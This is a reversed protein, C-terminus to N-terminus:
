LSIGFKMFIPLQNASSTLMFPKISVPLSAPFSCLCKQSTTANTTFANTFSSLSDTNKNRVPQIIKRSAAVSALVNCPYKEKWKEILYIISKHM